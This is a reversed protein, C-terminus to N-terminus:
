RLTRESFNGDPYRYMFSIYQSTSRCMVYIDNGINTIGRTSHVDADDSYDDILTFVTDGPAAKYLANHADLSTSTSSILWLNGSSDTTCLFPNSLATDQSSFQIELEPHYYWTDQGFGFIVMLSLMTVTLLIRRM